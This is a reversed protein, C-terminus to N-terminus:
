RACTKLTLSLSLVSPSCSCVDAALIHRFFFKEALLSDAAVQTLFLYFLRTFMETSATEMMHSKKNENPEGYRSGEEGRQKKNEINM